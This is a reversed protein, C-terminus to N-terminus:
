RRSWQYARRPTGDEVTIIGCFIFDTAKLLRRMRFNDAHTDIRVADFGRGLAYEKIQNMVRRGIGEKLRNESVILRHVTLYPSDDRWAGDISAYTAEERESLVATAVVTGTNDKFFYTEKNKIGQLIAAETPDAGQWQDVGDARLRRRASAIMKFITEGDREEARKLCFPADLEVFLSRDLKMEGDKVVSDMAIVAVGAKKADDLAEAFDPDIARNPRFLFPGKMQVAFLIATAKGAKALEALELVHKKGRATPADPFRAVGNEELTVGKVEVFGSRKEGRVYFDFRSKKYSVERRYSEIRGFAGVVPHGDFYRAVARNPALSDIVVWMGDKDVAILSYATKRESKPDAKRLLVRRGSILLERCRGTNPVHVRLREGGKDVYAIFRNERALFIAEYVSHHDM